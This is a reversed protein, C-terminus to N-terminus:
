NGFGGYATQCDAAVTVEKSGGRGASVEQLHLCCARGFCHYKDIRSFVILDWVVFMKVYMVSVFLLTCLNSVVICTTVRPKNHLHGM